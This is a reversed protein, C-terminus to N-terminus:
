EKLPIVMGINKFQATMPKGQHLQIAIVGKKAAKSSKDTVHTVLKGNFRHQLVNGIASITCENWEGPKILAQIEEPTAMEEVVTIKPKKPNDGDEVIVKQGRKALLGRGKADYAVANWKDGLEMDAQYGAVVFYSEDIIRSRYQVGSNSYGKGEGNEDLLRYKFNLTFDGPQGGEWVLFTTKKVKNDATTRGTIAGDEVTWFGEVGKWGTLDKGNFLSIVKHPESAFVPLSFALSITGILAFKVASM